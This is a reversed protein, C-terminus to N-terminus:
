DGQFKLTPRNALWALMRYNFCVSIRSNEEFIWHRTSLWYFHGMRAIKHSLPVMMSQRHNQLKQFFGCLRPWNPILSIGKSLAFGVGDPYSSARYLDDFQLVSHISSRLVWQLPRQMWKIVMVPSKITPRGAATTARLCLVDLWLSLM